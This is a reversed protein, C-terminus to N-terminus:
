FREERGENNKKKKKKSNCKTREISVIDLKLKVNRSYFKIDYYRFIYLEIVIKIDNSYEFYYLALFNISRTDHKNVDKTM